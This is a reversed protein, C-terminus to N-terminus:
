GLFRVKSCSESKKKLFVFIVTTKNDSQNVAGNQFGAGNNERRNNELCGLAAGQFSSGGESGEAFSGCMGCSLM